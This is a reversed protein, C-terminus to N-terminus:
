SQSTRGNDTSPIADNHCLATKLKYKAEQLTCAHVMVVNKHLGYKRNILSSIAIIIRDFCSSADVDMIKIASFDNSGFLTCLKSM